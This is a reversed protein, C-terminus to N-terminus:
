HNHKDPYKIDYECQESDWYELCLLVRGKEQKNFPKPSVRNLLSVNFVRGSSVFGTSNRGARLSLRGQIGDQHTFQQQQQQQQQHHHHHHHRRHNRNQNM